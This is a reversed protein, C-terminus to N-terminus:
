IMAHYPKIARIVKNDLFEPQSSVVFVPPKHSSELSELFSETCVQCGSQQEPIFEGGQKRSQDYQEVSRFM